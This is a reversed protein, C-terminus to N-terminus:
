LVTTGQTNFANDLLTYDAGTVSGSYDTDGNVWGSLALNFGNDINSYDADDVKGNLDTDGYYTYKLLVDTGATPQNDFTSYITNGGVSNLLVGIATKFTADNHAASSTIGNGAWGGTIGNALLQTIGNVDGNKVIMDNGGLDLKGTGFISLGTAIVLVSRNAHSTPTAVTVVGGSTIGLAALHRASIGGSTAANFLLTGSTGVNATLNPTNTQPDGTLQFTGANVKMTDLDTSVTGGNFVTGSGSSNLAANITLTDNGNGGNITTNTPPPNNVTVTDNGDLTNLTMSAINAYTLNTIASTLTGGTNFTYADNGTTGNIIVANSSGPGHINVPSAYGSALTLTTSGGNAAINV